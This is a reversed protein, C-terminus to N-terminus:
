PKAPLHQRSPHGPDVAPINWRLQKYVVQHSQHAHACGIAELYVFISYQTGSEDTQIGLHSGSYILGTHHISYDPRTTRIFPDLISFKHPPISVCRSVHLVACLVEYVLHFRFCCRLLFGKCFTLLKPLAKVTILWHGLLFTLVIFM